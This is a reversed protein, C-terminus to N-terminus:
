TLERSIAEVLSDPVSAPNNSLRELNVHERLLTELQVPDINLKMSLGITSTLARLGTADVGPVEINLKAHYDVISPLLLALAHGHPLGFRATLVYSFAHPASTKSINIARGSWYAAQQMGARSAPAPRIVAEELHMLAFDIARKAYDRSEATSGKAWYSEVGQALADMGSCATQYPTMSYTWEPVLLVHSALMRSDAVSTKEGGHYCVAFHTAESGSGSTTPAALMPCYQDGLEHNLLKAMDLVSGGGVAIIRRISRGRVIDMGRDVDEVKPNVAFDYFECAEDGLWRRMFDGAGSGRYSARGRVLLVETAGIGDWFANVFAEAGVLGNHLLQKL